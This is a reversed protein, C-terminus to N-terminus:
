PKRWALGADTLAYNTDLMGAKVLRNLSIKQVGTATGPHYVAGAQIDTLFIRAARSLKVTNMPLFEVRGGARRRYTFRKVNGAFQRM